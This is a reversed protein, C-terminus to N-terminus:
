EWMDFMYRKINDTGAKDIFEKIKEESEFYFSGQEQCNISRDFKICDDLANYYLNFKWETGKWDLERRYEELLDLFSRYERCEEETEFVPQRSLLWKDDETENYSGNVFGLSNVYWYIQKTDPVFKKPKKEILRLTGDELVELERGVLEDGKITKM